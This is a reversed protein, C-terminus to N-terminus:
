THSHGHHANGLKIERFLTRTTLAIYVGIGLTFVPDTWHWDTFTVLAGSILVAISTYADSAIHLLVSKRYTKGLRDEEEHHGSAILWHQILNGILGALAWGFTSAGNVENTLFFRLCGGLITAAAVVGLLRANILAGRRNLQQEYRREREKNGFIRRLLALAIRFSFWLAAIDAVVHLGDAILAFSNSHVGFWLEFGAVIGAILLALGFRVAQRERRTM